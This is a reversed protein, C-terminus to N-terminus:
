DSWFKRARFIKEALSSERHESIWNKVANVIRRRTDGGAKATEPAAGTKKADEKKHRKVIKIANKNM